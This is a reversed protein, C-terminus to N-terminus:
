ALVEKDDCGRCSLVKPDTTVADGGITLLRLVLTVSTSPTFAFTDAQTLTTTVKLGTMQVDAGEKIVKVDDGQSYVLRATKILSADFPLLFTHTPTTGQIITHTTM